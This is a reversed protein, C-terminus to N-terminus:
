LVKLPAKISGILEGSKSFILIINHYKSILPLYYNDEVKSQQDKLQQLLDAKMEKNISMVEHIDITHIKIKDFHESLSLYREIILFPPINKTTITKNLQKIAELSNPKKVFYFARPNKTLMEIQQASYHKTIANYTVTYFSDEWFTFAIPRQKYVTNIGWILASLQLVLIIGLDTKLETKPKHKNFVIFTLLPGLIIDIFAVIKLGQWGGSATFYPEPFWFFILLGFFTIFIVLSLTIHILAALLKSKLM